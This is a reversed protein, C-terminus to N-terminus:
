ILRMRYWFRSSISNWGATPHHNIKKSEPGTLVDHEPWWAKFESSGANLEAIFAMWWPDGAFLGFGARFQALRHRAHAEWNERLLLRAYPSLFTQWVSNREREPMSAYNGYIRNAAENWAIITLRQDMVYAPSTGHLDLYRQLLPSVANGPPTPDVPLQRLALLHLHRREDSDLQLAKAIGDLVQVSVHIDRAQELWTYWDLSVGSLLAVEGRRLGPTRRRGENPLGAQEPTLRARRTKLFQALEGLRTRTSSEM